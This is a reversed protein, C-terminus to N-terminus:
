RRRRTVFALGLALLGLLGSRPEPTTACGCGTGKDTSAGTDTGGTGGTGGSGSGGSDTGGTVIDDAPDLPNTYDKKEQGDSAGGGDSDALTPDTEGDDQAGNGNEDEDGDSLGDEDSDEVLPDTTTSPDEDAVFRSTDTADASEPSALGLETGDNVGDDDSDKNDPDTGLDVRETWDLLGDDDSDDCLSIEYYAGPGETPIVIDTLGNCDNDVGDCVEEADPSVSSTTDDCDGTPDTNSAEGADSCDLDDSEVPSAATPRYGDSDADAYCTDGGSCNQDIGDGVIEPIGPSNGDDNDDCDGDPTSDRAEGADRCDLDDSLVTDGDTERYGDGDRDVYCYEIGDCDEDAQSGPLEPAGDYAEANEDDCDGSLAETGVEGLDDCDLDDSEVTSTDSTHGDGDQDVYCLDGDDCDQDVGDDLVETANPYVTADSDDCDYGIDAKPAYGTPASCATTATGRAGVGDGDEDPYFDSGGTADSGDTSGDCNNDVGDCIEEADPNIASDSDDCDDDAAYGDSDNDAYGLYIEAKGIGASANYSGIIVDDYGDHDLDGAGLVDRGFGVTASAGSLTTRATSSLGSSTGEYLAAYGKSTSYGYAGVILDEYGDAGIDGASCLNAGFYSSTSPGTLTTSASTGLGSSSGHYLYVAGTSSTVGYAGIALDDYGDNNTDLVEIDYGYYTSSTTGSLTTSASSASLSSSFGTSGGHFVYVRGTGSSYQYAAIALDTYGDGNFDGAEVDNGFYSSTSAGNATALSLPTVGSSSGPYVDVKGLYSSFYPSGVAIDDYGDHNVDGVGRVAYGLATTSSSASLISSPFGSLGTSGGHYVYATGTSSSAAYAGIVVDDYGDNNVDGAGDIAFGFYYSTGLGNIYTAASTSLGTSAGHYIYVRGTGSSVYYAGIAIDDYGDANVDGITALTYGFYSSAGPGTYSTTATSAIPDIEIPYVADTDDIEVVIQDDVVDLAAALPTGNADWVSLDTYRISEGQAGDLWVDDGDLAPTAGQVAVTLTLLGEGDPADEVTWGQQLGAASNSWWETVGDLAREVRRVCAGTADVAGAEDCAGLAPAAQGAELLAEGRGWAAFRLAVEDEGVRVHAGDAAIRTHLRHNPTHAVYGGEDVQFAFAEQTLRAAVTESWGDARLDGQTPAPAAAPGTPATADPACAALLVLFQSARPM